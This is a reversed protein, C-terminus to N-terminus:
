YCCVLIGDWKVRFTWEDGASDSQPCRGNRCPAHLFGLHDEYSFGDVIAQYFFVILCSHFLHFVQDLLERGVGFSVIIFFGQKEDRPIPSEGKLAVVITIYNFTLINM